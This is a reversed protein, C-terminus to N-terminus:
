TSSLLKAFSSHTQTQLSLGTFNMSRERGPTWIDQLEKLEPTNVWVQVGVQLCEIIQNLHVKKEHKKMIMEHDSDYLLESMTENSGLPFTEPWQLCLDCSWLKSGRCLSAQSTKQGPSGCPSLSLCLIGTSLCSPLLSLSYYVSFASCRFFFTSHFILLM